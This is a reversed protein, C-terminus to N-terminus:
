EDKIGNLTDVLQKRMVANDSKRGDFQGNIGKVKPNSYNAAYHYFHVFANAADAQEQTIPGCDQDGQPKIRNEPKDIDKYVLVDGSKSIEYWGPGDSGPTLSETRIIAGLGNSNQGTVYRKINTGEWGIVSAQTANQAHQANQVPDSYGCADLPSSYAGIVFDVYVSPAKSFSLQKYDGSQYKLLPGDALNTTGWESPYSFKLGLEDNKYESLKTKQSTSSDHLNNTAKSNDRQKWVYWGTGAILGVFALLLIIEVVSFGKQNIKM